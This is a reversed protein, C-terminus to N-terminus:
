ESRDGEIRREDIRGHAKSVEAEFSLIPLNQTQYFHFEQNIDNIIRKKNQKVKFLYNGESKTIQTCLSEQVFMADGTVVKNKLNVSSLAKQAGIIEGGALGSKVQAVVGKEEPIYASVLHLLGKLSAHTSRISKGDIAIQKFNPNIQALTIKTIALEIECTSIIRRM